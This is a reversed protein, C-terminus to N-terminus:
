PATIWLRAGAIGLTAGCRGIIEAEYPNRHLFRSGIAGLLSGAAVMGEAFKAQNEPDYFHRNRMITEAEAVSEMIPHHEATLQKDIQQWGVLAESLDYHAVM